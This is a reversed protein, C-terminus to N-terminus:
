INGKHQFKNKIKNINVPRQRETPMSLFSNVTASGGGNRGGESGALSSMTDVSSAAGPLPTPSDNNTNYFFNARDSTRQGTLIYQRPRNLTRSDEREEAKHTALTSTRLGATEFSTYDSSSDKDTARHLIQRTEAQADSSRRNGGASNFTLPTDTGRPAGQIIDDSRSGINAEAGTPVESAMPQAAETQESEEGDTVLITELLVELTLSSKGPFCQM